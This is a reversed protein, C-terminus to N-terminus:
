GIVYTTPKWDYCQYLAIAYLLKYSFLLSVDVSIVLLFTKPFNYM